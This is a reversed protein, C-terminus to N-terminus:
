VLAPRVYWAQAVLEECVREGGQAQGGEARAQALAAQMADFAARDILPGVLVADQLPDGV